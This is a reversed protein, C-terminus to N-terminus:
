EKEGVQESARLQEATAVSNGSKASKRKMLYKGLVVVGVACVIQSTYDMWHPPHFTKVIWPDTIMMEGGVKGLIAAGITIIIPYKDMLM